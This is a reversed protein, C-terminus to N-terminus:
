HANLISDSIGKTKFLMFLLTLNISLIKILFLSLSEVTSADVAISTLTGKYVGIVVMILLAQLTVSMMSRVFNYGVSNFEKNFFTAFPISSVGIRMFIEIFRGLIVVQVLVRVFFMIINTIILTIWISFMQGLEMEKLTAEFVSLDATFIMNESQFLELAKDVIGQTLNIIMNTLDFANTVLYIALFSNVVFFILLKIPNQAEREDMLSKCLNTVIVVSLLLIALPMVVNENIKELLEFIRSNFSEPSKGLEAGVESTIQNLNGFIDKLFNICSGSILKEFFNM